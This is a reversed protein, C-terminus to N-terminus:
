PCDVLIEGRGRLAEEAPLETWWFTVARLQGRNAGDFIFVHNKVKIAAKKGPIDSARNKVIRIALEFNRVAEIPRNARLEFREIFHATQYFELGAEKMLDNAVKLAKVRMPRAQELEKLYGAINSM